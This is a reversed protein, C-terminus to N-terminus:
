VGAGCSATSPRTSTCWCCAARPRSCTRRGDMDLITKGMLHKDLLIWGPQDVFEPYADGPAPEVFIADDEIRLVKSFPIFETPKNWGHEVYLGVCEPYPEKLAFVLDALKGIRDSIKGACVPRKLLQSFFLFRHSGLGPPLDPVKPQVRNNNTAM